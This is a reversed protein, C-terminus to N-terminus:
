QRDVACTPSSTSRCSRRQGPKARSAWAGRHAGGPRRRRAPGRRRKPFTLRRLNKVVDSVRMAGELTGEILSGYDALLADIQLERRLTEIEDPEAGRM